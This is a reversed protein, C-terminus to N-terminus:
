KAPRRSSLHCEKFCCSYLAAINQLYAIIVSMHQLKNSPEYIKKFEKWSNNRLMVHVFNFRDDQFFLSIVSEYEAEVRSSAVAASKNWELEGLFRWDLDLLSKADRINHGARHFSFYFQLLLVQADTSLNFPPRPTPVRGGMSSSCGRM